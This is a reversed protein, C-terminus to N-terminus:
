KPKAGSFVEDANDCLLHAFRFIEPLRGLPQRDTNLIARLYPELHKEPWRVEDEGDVYWPYELIPGSESVQPHLRTIAEIAAVIPRWDDQYKGTLRNLLYPHDKFIKMLSLGARHHRRADEIDVMDGYLLAGKAAKEFTMQLLMALVSICTGGLAEAAKLEAEAQRIYAHAWKSAESM